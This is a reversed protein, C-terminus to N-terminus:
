CSQLKPTEHSDYCECKERANLCCMSQHSSLGSLSCDVGRGALGPGANHFRLHRAHEESISDWEINNIFLCTFVIM